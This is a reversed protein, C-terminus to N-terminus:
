HYKDVILSVFVTDSFSRLTAFLTHLRDVLKTLTAAAISCSSEVAALFEDVTVPEETPLACLEVSAMKELVAEIRCELTDCADGSLRRLEDLVNQVTEIDIM